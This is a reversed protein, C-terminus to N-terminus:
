AAQMNPWYVIVDLGMSDMKFQFAFDMWDSWAMQYEEDGEVSYDHLESTVAQLVTMINEFSGVLGLCEQGYMCRGSYDSRLEVDFDPAVNEVIQAITQSIQM